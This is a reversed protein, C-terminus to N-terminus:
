TLFTNGNNSGRGERRKLEVLAPMLPLLFILGTVLFLAAVWFATM